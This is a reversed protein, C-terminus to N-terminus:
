LHLSKIPLMTMWNSKLIHCKNYSVWTIIVINGKITPCQLDCNQPNSLNQWHWAKSPIMKKLTVTQLANPACKEYFICHRLIWYFKCFLELIDSPMEVFKKLTLNAWIHFINLIKLFPYSHWPIVIYVYALMSGM